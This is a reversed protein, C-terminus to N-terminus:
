SFFLNKGLKPSKLDGMSACHDDGIEEVITSDNIEYLALIDKDNFKKFSSRNSIVGFSKPSDCPTQILNPMSESSNGLLLRINDIFRENILENTNPMSLTSESHKMKKNIYYDNNSHINNHVPYECLNYPVSLSQELKKSCGPLSDGSDTSPSTATGNNISNMPKVDLKLSNKIPIRTKHKPINSSPMHSSTSRTIFSPSSPPLHNTYIGTNKLQDLSKSHRQRTPLTKSQDPHLFKNSAQSRYKTPLTSINSIFEGNSKSSPGLTLKAKVISKDILKEDEFGLLGLSIPINNRKVLAKQSSTSRPRSSIKQSRSELIAVIGCSCDEEKVM